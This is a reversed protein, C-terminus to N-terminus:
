MFNTEVADRMVHRNDTIQKRIETKQRILLIQAGRFKSQPLRLAYITNETRAADSRERM